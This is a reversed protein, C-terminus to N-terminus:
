LFQLLAESFLDSTCLSSYPQVQVELFAPHSFFATTLFQLDLLHIGPNLLLNSPQSGRNLGGLDADEVRQFLCIHKTKFWAVVRCYKTPNPIYDGRLANLDFKLAVKETVPQEANSMAYKLNRAQTVM